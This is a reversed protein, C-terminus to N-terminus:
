SDATFGPDVFRGQYPSLLQQCLQPILEGLYQPFLQIESFRDLPMWVVDVQHKDPAPGNGPRYGDPLECAFLFEVVHRWRVPETDRQKLFDKVAILDGAVVACGIEEECERLLTDTLAEGPDQGGGPLAYRVGGTDYGDKKLLLAHGDRIILGRVANRIQPEIENM